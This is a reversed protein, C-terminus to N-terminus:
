LLGPEVLRLLGVRTDQHRREERKYTEEFTPGFFIALAILLALREAPEIPLNAKEVMSM